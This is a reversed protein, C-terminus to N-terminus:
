HCYVAGWRAMGWQSQQYLLEVWCGWERHGISAAPLDDGHTAPRCPRRGTRCSMRSHGRKTVTLTVTVQQGSQAPNPTITKTIERDCVGQKNGFNINMASPPVTVTYTGPRPAPLDSDM